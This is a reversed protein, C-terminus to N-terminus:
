ESLISLWSSIKCRIGKKIGEEGLYPGWEWSAIAIDIPNGTPNLGMKGYGYFAIPRVYCENLKNIKVLEKTIDVLQDPSYKLDMMYIKASNHLRIYHEKPRFLAPGKSTQYCRVSEFIGTGYHLAHTLIHVNADDWDVFEGNLWIKNTKDM